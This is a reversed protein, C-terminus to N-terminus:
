AAAHTANRRGDDVRASRAYGGIPLAIISRATDSEGAFERSGTSLHAARSRRSEGRNLRGLGGHDSISPTAGIRVRQDVTCRLTNYRLWGHRNHSTKLKPHTMSVTCGVYNEPSESGSLCSMGPACDVPSQRTSPPCRSRAARHRDSCLEWGGRTLWWSFCCVTYLFRDCRLAQKHKSLLFSIQNFYTICDPTHLTSAFITIWSDCSRPLPPSYGVPCWLSARCM